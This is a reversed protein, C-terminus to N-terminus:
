PAFRQVCSINYSKAKLAEAIFVCAKDPKTHKGCTFFDIAAFNTEPWTHISVHSEALVAVATLGQPHFKHCDINILSACAIDVADKLTSVIFDDDDLLLENAGIVDLTFHKLDM